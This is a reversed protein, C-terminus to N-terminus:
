GEAKPTSPNSEERKDTKKNKALSPGIVTLVIGAIVMSGIVLPNDHSLIADMCADRIAPPLLAIIMGGAGLLGGTITTKPNESLKM